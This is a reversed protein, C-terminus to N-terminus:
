RVKIFDKCNNFTSIETDHFDCWFIVDLTEPNVDDPICHECNLCTM